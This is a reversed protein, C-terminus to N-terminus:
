IPVAAARLGKAPPIRSMWVLLVAVIVIAFLALPWRQWGGPLQLFSFSVGTNYTLLFNLSPLVAVPRYPPLREILMFKSVQDIAVVLATLWLWRLGSRMM